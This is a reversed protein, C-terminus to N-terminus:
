AAMLGVPGAEFIAVSSGPGLQANVAAHHRTPLIDSLFLMQEDTLVDPIKLSGVNAESVRADEAQGGACGGYLHSYGFLGAGATVSKKNM